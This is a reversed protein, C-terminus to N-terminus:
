IIEAQGQKLWGTSGDALEIQYWGPRQDIVEFEVGEHLPENFQPEYGEGNGKRVTIDDVVTVGAVTHNRQVWEVATSTGAALWVVMTALAAYGWGPARTAARIALLLWFVGWAVVATWFRARLSTDYHWFLATHLAARGGDSRIQSRCLSRAFRLNAALQADNGLLAEARRYNAIAKGLEGLQLYANGLNYYLQGNRVGDAILAKFGAVAERYAAAAAGPNRAAAETARDFAGLAQALIQEHTGTPAAVPAPTSAPASTAARSAPALLGLLLVAVFGSIALQRVRM